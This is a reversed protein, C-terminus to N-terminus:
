KAGMLLVGAAALILLTVHNGALSGPSDMEKKADLITQLSQAQASISKEATDLVRGGAAILLELRDTNSQEAGELYALGAQILGHDTMTVSNGNGGVAVGGNDAVSRADAQSTSSQSSSKSGM